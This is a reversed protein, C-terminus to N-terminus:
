ESLAEILDRLEQLSLLEALGDPMASPGRQRSEISDKPIRLISADASLVRLESGTEEKLIGLISNGDKTEILVSEYGTAM